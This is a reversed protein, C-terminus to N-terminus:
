QINLFFYVKHNDGVDYFFDYRMSTQLTVEINECMSKVCFECYALQQLLDLSLPPMHTALVYVTGLTDVFKHSQPIEDDSIYHVPYFQPAYVAELEEDPIKGKNQSKNYIRVEEQKEIQTQMSQVAEETYVKLLDARVEPEIPYWVKFFTAKRTDIVPIATLVGNLKDRKLYSQCLNIDRPIEETNMVTGFM